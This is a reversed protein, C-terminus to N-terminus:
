LETLIEYGPIFDACGKDPQVEVRTTLPCELLGSYVADPGTKPALVNKPYPGPVFRSGTLNMEARNWTDIQM